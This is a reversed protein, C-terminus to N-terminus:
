DISGINKKYSTNKTLEGAQEIRRQDAEALARCRTGADSGAGGMDDQWAFRPRHNM